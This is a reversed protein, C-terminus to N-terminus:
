EITKLTKIAENFEWFGRLSLLKGAENVEYTFVGDVQQSLKKEGLNIIIDLTVINACENGCAYSKHITIKIESNAINREWFAEREEPTGYGKGAKDLPSVGIPDEIVANEAYLSLWGEKDHNHVCERSKFSAARAPHEEAM